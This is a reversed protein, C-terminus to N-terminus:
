CKKINWSKNQETFILLDLSFNVFIKQQKKDIFFNTPGDFEELIGTFHIQQLINTNTQGSLDIGVLEYHNQLYSFDLLNETIYDDNGSMEILKEYMKKNKKVPQDFRRNNVIFANFDKIEVFLMCYKDFSDRTCDNNGNTFSLVFM